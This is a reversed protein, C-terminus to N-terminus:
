KKLKQYPRADPIFGDRNPMKVQPLTKENLEFSETIIGNWHLLLATLAYVEDPKLTRPTEYPMARFITDWVTTAHPWYSGVTKIPKATALSGVGGVLRPYQQDRGEGKENHCEACKAKYIDKGEAATGKGAPLGKGNPFVTIDFKRIEEASAPRGTVAQSLLSSLLLVEFM